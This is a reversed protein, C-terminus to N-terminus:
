RRRQLQSPGARHEEAPPIVVKCPTGPAHTAHAPHLPFPKRRRSTTTGDSRHGSLRDVTADDPNAYVGILDRDDKALENGPSVLTSVLRRGSRLAPLLSEADGTLHIIADVGIM